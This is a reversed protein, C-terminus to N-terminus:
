ETNHLPQHNTNLADGKVWEITYVSLINLNWIFAMKTGYLEFVFSVFCVFSVFSSLGSHPPHDNTILNIVMSLLSTDHKVWWSSLLNVKENFRCLHQIINSNCVFFCFVQSFTFITMCITCSLFLIMVHMIDSLWESLWEILWDSVSVIVWDIM